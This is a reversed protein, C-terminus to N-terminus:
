KTQRLRYFKQGTLGGSASGDDAFAFSGSASSATETFSSWPGNVTPAWEVKFEATSPATWKFEVGAASREVSGIRPMPTPPAPAPATSLGQRVRFFSLPSPLSVCYTTTNGTATLTSSVLVWNTSSLNTLGEVYYHIGPESNWTICLSTATITQSIVVVNTARVGWQTALMTYTIPAGSLNVATLYWEGPTLPVPRTYDFVVIMEDSLGPLESKFDRGATFSNLDPPLLGKRAVLTVDGTPNLIEFQARVANTRVVFRYYDNTIGVGSNTNAYPSANFLTILTPLTNTYATALITYDFATATANFVGVYWRGPSLPVLESDATVIIEEDNTGPNRSVHTYDTPTPFPVGKRAVLTANGTLNTLQFSVATDGALVDYYFYRPPAAAAMSTAIPVGNTLPTMDFDVQFVFTVTSATGNSFGLYYINNPVLPPISPPVGNSLTATSTTQGTFLTYDGGLGFNTGWPVGNQNFLLDLPGNATVLMNSAFSAWNPVDVVLHKIKGPAVTNTLLTGPTVVTPIPIPNEFRFLLEWSLLFPPINTAGARTDHVELRWDGTAYEAQYKALTEEPLYFINSSLLANTGIYNVNTYPPLAFKIPMLTKNTAETFITYNYEARSARVIYEWETRSESNGDPNIIITIFTSSGDFSLINTGKGNIWGTDLLKKGEYYVVMWDALLYFDHEIILEGKTLGTNFINTQPESTGTSTSPTANTYILDTGMGDPTLAGRNESLLARTGSPSILTFALDSIRPHNVRLGAEVSILRDKTPVNITSYTVADDLIAVPTTTAFRTLSLETESYIQFGRIYVQVKDAGLNCTSITYIGANLPPDTTGNISLVNTSGAVVSMSHCTTDGQRCIEVSVPGTGSVMGVTVIFDTAEASVYVYDLRCGGAGIDALFGEQPDPQEEVYIQLYENTGTHTFATDLMTFIWQGQGISGGFDTLSGPGDTHISGPHDGEDSDDYIYTFNTVASNPAHNNLWVSAGSHHLNGMLDGMLEHTLTNTVIVRRVMYSEPQIGFMRVGGPNAATGDPFPAPNPFTMLAGETSFPNQSFVGLFGYESALQSECKVGIYYIGALANTLILTESGGRSLSQFANSVAAPSLNTLAYDRTVYLDLDAEPRTSNDETAERTGMRPLSLTPPFFTGFAANTYGSTNTIVYFHWQNTMGLTLVGDKPVSLPVLNTGLLPTSAGVRQQNLIGGSVPNTGGSPLSNTVFTVLPQTLSTRPPAGLTLTLQDDLEGDGSSIVLAYDQVVGNTHGTVANVNVRSGIVTVSYNTGVVSPLFVNEVNNVFDINALGNTDWALNFDNGSLIDNGFFVEGSDLNTVVLDLNNVLKVSAVPNGPPDTWVLTFRLPTKQAKYAVSINRTFSEGTALANTPSQDYAFMSSATANRNSLSGHLSSPLSIKGWGQFNVQSQPYLSYLPGVSRAGNILLAKMLAPSNTVGLRQEFFEQMLALTGSVQAASMSSGSEYRYFPGLHNNMNSLVEFYNGNDNTTTILETINFALTQTYNNAVGYFWSADTPSLTGGGDPPMAVYNTRVFDFEGVTTSPVDAQRVYIPLNTFQPNASTPRAWIEVSVANFPVWMAYIGLSGKEVEQDEYFNYHYNTPNYYGLEDWTTTRTSVVFTGPAVVDPKFRGFEGEIGVGVNGRSSFAAIHNTADTSGAWPTNTDCVTVTNTGEITTVCNNLVVNTVNRYQEVTGVTIVNKATAPSQITDPSGGEGGDDGGGANGAPFVLLLPQSGTTGPLADRVAADYSAAALDYESDFEYHWSNNSIFANTRRATEQLYTDSGPGFVLDAAMSFIQSAPALGRFQGAVPPMISELANTVSLSNTGSSAIIGAVHTGHGNSDVGSTPVDFSVRGALDPHNTDVGTDNVNVLVKNGTLGLYNTAAVSDAAVGVASRSLDNAPVRARSWEISQVANLAAIRPLSDVPVRVKVMPGHPNRDEGVLETKLDRLQELASDRTGPFLLLNLEAGEPLDRNQAALKLLSPKLKFYPEYNIVALTSADAAIQQVASASAQVLLANNPIYSVIAAGSRALLDRYGPTIVGRSQVIYSGPDGQSKLHSPIALETPNATDILANELLLASDSRILERMPKLTNSLQFALKAEAAKPKQAVPAPSNLNGAQTLL